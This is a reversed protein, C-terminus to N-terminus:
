EILMKEENSEEGRATACKYIFYGIAAGLVAGVVGLGVSLVINDVETLSCDVANDVPFYTSCYGIGYGLFAGAVMAGVVGSGGGGPGNCCTAGQEEETGVEEKEIPPPAPPTLPGGGPLELEPKKATPKISFEATACHVAITNFALDREEDTMSKVMYDPINYYQVTLDGDIIDASYFGIKTGNVIVNISISVIGDRVIKNFTYTVEQGGEVDLGTACVEFGTDTNDLIAALLNKARQEKLKPDPDHGEQDQDVQLHTEFAQRIAILKEVHKPISIQLGKFGGLAQTKKELSAKVTSFTINKKECRNYTDYVEGLSLTNKASTFCIVKGESDKAYFYRSTQVEPEVLDDDNDDQAPPTINREVFLVNRDLPEMEEILGYGKELTVIRYSVGKELSFTHEHQVGVLEFLEDFQEGPTGGLEEEEGSDQELSQGLDGPKM